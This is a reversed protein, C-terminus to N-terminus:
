FGTVCDEVQKKTKKYVELWFLANDFDLNRHSMLCRLLIEDGAMDGYTFSLVDATESIDDRDQVKNLTMEPLAVDM